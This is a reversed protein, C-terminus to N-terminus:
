LIALCDVILAIYKIKVGEKYRDICNIM